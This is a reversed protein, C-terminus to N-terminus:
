QQVYEHKGLSALHFNRSSVDRDKRMSLNSFKLIVTKVQIEGAKNYLKM